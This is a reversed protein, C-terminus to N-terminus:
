KRRRSREVLELSAKRAHMAHIILVRESDFVLAVLEVPRGSGDVGIRLLRPPEADDLWCQRSEGTRWTAEIASEDVGHKLAAPHISIRM